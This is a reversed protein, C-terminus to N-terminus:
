LSRRTASVDRWVFDFWHWYGYKGVESMPCIYFLTSHVVQGVPRNTLENGYFALDIGLIAARCGSLHYVQACLYFGHTPFQIRVCGINLFPGIERRHNM